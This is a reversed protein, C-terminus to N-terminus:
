SLFMTRTIRMLNQFQLMPRIKLGQAYVAIPGTQPSLLGIKVTTTGGGVIGCSIVLSSAILTMMLLYIKSRLKM